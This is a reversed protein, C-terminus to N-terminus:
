NQDDDDDSADSSPFLQQKTTRLAQLLTENNHYEEMWRGVLYKSPNEERDDGILVQGKLREFYDVDAMLQDRAQRAKHLIDEIEANEELLEARQSRWAAEYQAQLDDHRGQLDQLITSRKSVRQLIDDFRIACSEHAERVSDLSDKWSAQLDQHFSRRLSRLAAFLDAVTTAM